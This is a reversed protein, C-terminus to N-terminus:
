VSRICQENVTNHEYKGFNMSFSVMFIVKVAIYYIEQLMGLHRIDEKLPFVHESAM